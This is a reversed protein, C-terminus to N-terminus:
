ETKNVESIDRVPKTIAMTAKTGKTTPMIDMQAVRTTRLRTLLRQRTKVKITNIEPM